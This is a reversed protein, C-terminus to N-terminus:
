KKPRKPQPSEPIHAHKKMEPLAHHKIEEVLAQIKESSADSPGKKLETEFANFYFEFLAKQNNDNIKGSRRQHDLVNVLTNMAQNANFELQKFESNSMSKPSPSMSEQKRKPSSTFLTAPPQELEMASRNELASHVAAKIMQNVELPALDGFIKFQGSLAESNVLESAVFTEPYYQNHRAVQALDKNPSEFEWHVGHNHVRFTLPYARDPLNQAGHTIKGVEPRKKADEISAPTYVELGISLSYALLSLQEASVMEANDLKGMTDAYRLSGEALWYSKAQALISDQLANTRNFIVQERIREESPIGKNGLRDQEIVHARESETIIQSTIRRQSRDYKTKLEELWAENAHFLPLAVDKVKGTKLYESITAAADTDWTVDPLSALKKGLHQRLVPAFIAEKDTPVPYNDLLQKIDEWTPTQPLQYYEQFTVLLAQYEPNTAFNKQLEGQSLQQYLFHTLCNLGCNNQWGTTKCLLQTNLNIYAHQELPM